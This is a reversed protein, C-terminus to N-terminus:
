LAIRYCFFGDATQGAPEIPLSAFDSLYGQAKPGTEFLATTNSLPLFAWTGEAVPHVTGQDTIYRVLVDRNTDPAQLIIHDKGTGAFQGGGNARYSNTAVIFTQDNAIPAGEYRLDVIRRARPHILEGHTDFKSPQSLDIRYTVGQVMDFNYSPFDPNLLPQDALGPTLQNFIGVARELWDKLQAGSVEVARVTNPYLYLDAVNKIAIDGVAVDTFYDPGGRGGAKFPAAASLLPLSAYQSGALLQRVYWRQASSVIQVSPDDSVLAFYSHLPTKTRGVARRIYSLTASHDRSVTDLIPPLSEVLPKVGGDSTRQAIPKATSETSVVRWDSGSRELLLDIQGLHSGWFGAMVAPKGHITGAVADVAPLGQFIPSPFVLHSHGTLIADIEPLAALPVSANEMGPTANARGIGSHSLALILDAGEERMQPLLGQAAELIDRTLVNGELHRRDWNIIQPPLFGIIGIKIKHTQGSGDIITRDLLVYPPFLTEDRRPDSGLRTAVNASVVPFTAGAMSKMLFDIGYNFDHNGLTVADYGVANLTAIIPHIDGNRMGREFAIYDGMPNGQLFDGNDVVLCNAAAARLQQIIAATRALGVTDRPEDWYYDYPYIHMHLDTTELIRLHAQTATAHTSYPHLVNM